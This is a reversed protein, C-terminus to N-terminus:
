NARNESSGLQIEQNQSFRFLDPLQHSPQFKFASPPAEEGTVKNAKRVPLSTAEQSALDCPPCFASSGRFERVCVFHHFPCFTVWEM